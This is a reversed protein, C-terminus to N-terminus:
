VLPCSDITTILHTENNNHQEQSFPVGALGWHRGSAKSYTIRGPQGMLLGERRVTHLGVLSDWWSDRRVAWAGMLLGAKSYTIRGPQGVLLGATSGLSGDPTGGHQM